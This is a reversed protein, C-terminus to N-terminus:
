RGMEAYIKELNDWYGIPFDNKDRGITLKNNGCLGHNRIMFEFRDYYPMDYKKILEAVDEREEPPTRQEIITPLFVRIYEDLRLDTDCGPIAPCGVEEWVDWYIRIVWDKELADNSEESIEGICKSRYFIYCTRVKCICPVRTNYDNKVSRKM